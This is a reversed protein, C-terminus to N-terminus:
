CGRETYIVPAKSENIIALMGERTSNSLDHKTIHGHEDTVFVVDMKQCSTIVDVRPPIDSAVAVSGVMLACAALMAASLVNKM